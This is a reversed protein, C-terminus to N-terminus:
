VFLKPSSYVNSLEEIHLKRWDGIVSDRKPELMGNWARNEFLRLRCEERVTFSWTECGYL